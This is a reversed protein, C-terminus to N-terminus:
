SPSTMVAVIAVGSITRMPKKKLISSADYIEEDSWEGPLSSLIESDPPISRLNYKKCLNIKANHLERKDTIQKLKIMELIESQFGTMDADPM